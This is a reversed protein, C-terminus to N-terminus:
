LSIQRPPRELGDPIFGTVLPSPAVVEVFAQHLEPVWHHTSMMAFAGVCCSGCADCSANKHEHHHHQYHVSSSAHDHSILRSAAEDIANNHHHFEGHAHLREENHVSLVILQHDTGCSARVVAAFGQVPLTLM